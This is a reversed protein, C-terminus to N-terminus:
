DAIGMISNFDKTTQKSEEGMNVEDRLALEEQDGMYSGNSIGGETGFTYRERLGPQEDKLIIHKTKGFKEGLLRAVQNASTIEKM